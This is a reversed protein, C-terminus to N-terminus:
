RPVLPDRDVGSVSVSVGPLREALRRALIPLFGRESNTHDTLVVTTGRAIRALV